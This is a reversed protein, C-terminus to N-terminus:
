STRRPRESPNSSVGRTERCAGPLILNRPERAVCRRLSLGGPASPNVGVGVGGASATPGPGGAMRVAAREMGAAPRRGDGGSRREREGRGGAARRRCVGGERGVRYPGPPAARAPVRGVERRM